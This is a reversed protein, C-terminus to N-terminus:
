SAPQAPSSPSHIIDMITKVVTGLIVGIVAGGVAGVVAAGVKGLKWLMSTHEPKFHLVTETYDSEQVNFDTKFREIAKAASGSTKIRGLFEMYAQQPSADQNHELFAGLVQMTQRAQEPSAAHYKVGEYITGWTAANEQPHTSALYTLYKMDKAAEAAPMGQDAKVFEGLIRLETRSLNKGFETEPYYEAKPVKTSEYKIVVTDKEVSQHALYGGAAAGAVGLGATAVKGYDTRAEEEGAVNKKFWDRISAGKSPASGSEKDEGKGQEPVEPFNRVMGGTIQLNQDITM